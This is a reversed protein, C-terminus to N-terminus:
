FDPCNETMQQGSAQRLLCSLLVVLDGEAPDVGVGGIDGAEELM